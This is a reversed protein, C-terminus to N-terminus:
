CGAEERMKNRKQKKSRNGWHRREKEPLGAKTKEGEESKQGEKNVIVLIKMGNEPGREKDQTLDKKGWCRRGKIKKRKKLRAAEVIKMGERAAREKDKNLKKKPYGKLIDM